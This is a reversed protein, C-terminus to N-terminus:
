GKAFPSIDSMGAGMVSRSQSKLSWVRRLCFPDIRFLRDRPLSSHRTRDDEIASWAMIKSKQGIAGNFCSLVEEVLYRALDELRGSAVNVQEFVHGADELDTAKIAVWPPALAIPSQRSRSPQNVEIGHCLYLFNVVTAKGLLDGEVAFLLDGRYLVFAVFDEWPEVSFNEMITWRLFPGIVLLPPDMKCFAKSGLPRQFGVLSEKLWILIEPSASIFKIYNM